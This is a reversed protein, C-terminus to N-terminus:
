GIYIACFLSSQLVTVNTQFFHDLCNLANLLGYRKNHNGINSWFRFFCLLYISCLYSWCSYYLRSFSLTLVIFRFPSLLLGKDLTPDSGPVENLSASPRFRDTLSALLSSRHLADVSLECFLCSFSCAV